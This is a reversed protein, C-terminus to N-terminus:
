KTALVTEVRNQPEAEQTVMKQQDEHVVEMVEKEGTIFSASSDGPHVGSGTQEGSLSPPVPENISSQLPASDASPAVSPPLTPPKTPKPAISFDGRRVFAISPHAHRIEKPADKLTCYDPNTCMVSYCLGAMMQALHCTKDACCKHICAKMTKADKHPTLKGSLMGAKLVTQHHIKGDAHCVNDGPKILKVPTGDDKIAVGFRRKVIFQVTRKHKKDSKVSDRLKTDDVVRCGKEDYCSVLFCNKGFMYALDCTADECCMRTCIHSKGVAGLDKFHGAKPGALLTSGEFLKSQVCHLHHPSKGSPVSVIKKNKEFLWPAVFAMKQKFSYEEGRAPLAQCRDESYCKVLYCRDQLMFALDCEVRSECCYRVCTMISKVKGIDTFKGAQLGAELKVNYLVENHPCKADPDFKEIESTNGKILNAAGKAVRVVQMGVDEDDSRVTECSTKNYCRVGYCTRGNMMALDCHDSLCCKHLCEQINKVEGRNRILGAMTGDRLTVGYEIQGQGCNYEELITHGSITSLMCVFFIWIGNQLAM